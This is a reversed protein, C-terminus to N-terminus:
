LFVSDRWEDGSERIDTIESDYINLNHDEYFQDKVKQVYETKSSAEHNCGSFCLTVVWEFQKEESM